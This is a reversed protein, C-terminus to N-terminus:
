QSFSAKRETARSGDRARGLPGLLGNLLTRAQERRLFQVLEDSVQREERRWYGAAFGSLRSLAGAIYPRRHLSVACKAIEFVPHSGLAFAALGARYLYSVRGSVSGTPRHHFVQVDPFSEVRWGNMRASIEACWDPAGYRLPIYGGIAQFCARRFLQIGHPVSKTRNGKRPAFGPDDKEYLWGGALGLTPDAEFKSMLKRFYSEDFSIDSDVNGIFDFEVGSKLLFEVGANIAHIQAGFDPAHLKSLQLLHIFAHEQAYQGIIRATSDTSGDDVIVWKRPRMEQGCIARITQEIFAEENHAATVLVYQHPTASECSALVSEGAQADDFPTVTSGAGDSYAM